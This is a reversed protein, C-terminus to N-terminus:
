KQRLANRRRVLLGLMAVGFISFTAPASVSPPPPPNAVFFPVYGGVNLLPAGNNDYEGRALALYQISGDTVLSTVDLVSEQFFVDFTLEDNNDAAQKATNIYSWEVSNEKTDGFDLFTLASGDFAYYEFFITLLGDGNLDDTAQDLATLQFQVLTRIPSNVNFIPVGFSSTGLRSGELEVAPTSPTSGDPLTIFAANTSMAVLSCALLAFFRKM